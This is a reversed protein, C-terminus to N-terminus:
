KKFVTVSGKYNSVEGTKFAKAEIMYFYVGDPVVEGKYTGDWFKGDSDHYLLQGWRNFIQTTFQWDEANRYSFEDNIKDGNPTFVNPIDLPLTCKTVILTDSSSCDSTSIKVWYTGTDTVTFVPNNSNDQWLYNAGPYSVDLTFSEGKCLTRDIGLNAVPGPKYVVTITDTQTCGQLSGSVWYKGAQTVLFHDNTSGDQWVYHANPNGGELLYKQGECLIISDDGLSVNLINNEWQTLCGPPFIYCTSTDNPFIFNILNLNVPTTGGYAFPGDGEYWVNYDGLGIIGGKKSSSPFDHTALVFGFDLCTNITPSGNPLTRSAKLQNSLPIGVMGTYANGRMNICCKISESTWGGEENLTNYAICGIPNPYINKNLIHSIINATGNLCYTPNCDYQIFVKGGVDIYNSIQQALASYDKDAFLCLWDYGNVPDICRSTFNPPLNTNNNITVFHGNQIIANVIEPTALLNNVNNLIYIKDANVKSVSIILIILFAIKKIM